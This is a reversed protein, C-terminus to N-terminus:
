HTLIIYYLYFKCTRSCLIGKKNNISNTSGTSNKNKVNENGSVSQKQNPVETVYKLIGFSDNQTITGVTPSQAINTPQTVTM